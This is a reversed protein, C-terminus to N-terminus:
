IELNITYKIGKGSSAIIAYSFPDRSLVRNFGVQSVNDKDPTGELVRYQRPVVVPTNGWGTARQIFDLLKELRELQDMDSPDTITPQQGRTYRYPDKSLMDWFRNLRHLFAYATTSCLDDYLHDIPSSTGQPMLTALWDMVNDFYRATNIAASDTHWLLNIYDDASPLPIPFGAHAYFAILLHITGLPYKQKWRDKAYVNRELNPNLSTRQHGPIQDAASYKLVHHGVSCIHTRNIDIDVFVCDSLKEEPFERDHWIASARVYFGAIKWRLAHHLLQACLFGDFDNSIIMSRSEELLWPFRQAFSDYDLMRDGGEKSGKSRRSESNIIM